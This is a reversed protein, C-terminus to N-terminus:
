YKTNQEVAKNTGYLNSIISLNTSDYKFLLHLVGYKIYKEVELNLVSLNTFCSCKVDYKLCLDLISIFLPM